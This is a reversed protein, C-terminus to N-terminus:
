WSSFGTFLRTIRSPLGSHVLVGHRFSPSFYKKLRCHFPSPTISPSLPSFSFRSSVRAYLPSDPFSQNPYPRLSFLRSTSEASPSGSENHGAAETQTSGIKDCQRVLHLSSSRKRHSVGNKPTMYRQFGSVSKKFRCM